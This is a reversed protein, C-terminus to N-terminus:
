ALDGCGLSERVKNYHREQVKQEDLAEATNNDIPFAMYFAFLDM